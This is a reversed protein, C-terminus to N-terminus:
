DSYMSKTKKMFMIVIVTMVLGLLFIIWGISAGSGAEWYRFTKIYLYFVLTALSNQKGMSFSTQGGLNSLAAPVDFIQLGSICGMIVQFFIVPALLPLTIHIFKRWWGAGDIEAAEFVSPPQNSIGALFIVVSAGVFWLNTFILVWVAIGPEELWAVPKGGFLGIFLNVLGFNDIRFVPAMILGFAIPLVLNPLFIITKFIGRGAIKEYLMAAIFLSLIIGLGNSIFLYLLTNFLSLFFLKDATFLTIYNSLGIFVPDSGIIDWKNFSIFLSFFMPFLQFCLFGICWPLIFLYGMKGMIFKAKPRKM